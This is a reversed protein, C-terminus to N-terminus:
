YASGNRMHRELEGRDRVIHESERSRAEVVYQEERVYAKCWSFLGLPLYLNPPQVHLSLEKYDVLLQRRLNPAPFFSCSQLIISIKLITNM